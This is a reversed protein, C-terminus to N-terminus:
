AVWLAKMLVFVQLSILSVTPGLPFSFLVQTAPPYLFTGIPTRNKPSAHEYPHLHLDKPHEEDDWLCRTIMPCLFGRSALVVFFFAPLLSFHVPSNLRCGAWEKCTYVSRLALHQSQELPWTGSDMWGIGTSLSIMVAPAAWHLPSKQNTAGKTAKRKLKRPEESQVEVARSFNLFKFPLFGERGLAPEEVKM